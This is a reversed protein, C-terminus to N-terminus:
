NDSIKYKLFRYSATQPIEIEVRNDKGFAKLKETGPMLDMIQYKKDHLFYVHMEKSSDPSHLERFILLYGENMEPHHLQFGTWSKNDPENGIPFVYSSFMARKEANYAKLLEKVDEQQSETLLQTLMFFVPAGALSVATSYSIDHLWADSLNKNTLAPNQINCQLKNLNYYKSFNWHHRLSIYPVYILHEPLNNQINQFFMPGVSRAKSYWGYRADHYEPCWAIQTKFESYKVLDQALSMRNDFTEWNNIIDFDLKWTRPQLEKQIKFLEERTIMRINAWLGLGIHHSAALRKVNSWDEAYGMDKNPYWNNQTFTKGNQWGDDIRVIDIGLKSANIIEKSVIDFHSNERGYLKTPNDERYDSGWTDIITVADRDLDIPFVARDFSKIALQRSAQDSNSIIIWTPWTSRFVQTIEEPKLGWGTVEIGKQSSYFQGTEHGNINTTKSSQKMITLSFKDKTVIMGSAWDIWEPQFLPFGTFKEEKLMSFTNVTHGPDNRYGWYMRDNPKSFDIPIFEGRISKEIQTSGYYDKYTNDVHFSLEADDKLKRIELHTYIGPANPYLKSIYKVELLGGYGILISILLHDSTFGEDNSETFKVGKISGQHKSSEKLPNEWDSIHGSKLDAWEIDNEIDRLGMTKFGMDTWVLTREVKGTSLRLTDNYLSVTSEKYTKQYTSDKSFNSVSLASNNTVFFYDSEGYSVLPFLMILLIESWSKFFKM